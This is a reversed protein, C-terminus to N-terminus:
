DLQFLIWSKKGGINEINQLGYYKNPYDVRLFALCQYLASKHNQNLVIM